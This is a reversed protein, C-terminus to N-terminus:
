NVRVIKSIYMPGYNNPISPLVVQGYRMLSAPAFRSMFEFGQVTSTMDKITTEINYLFKLQKMAMYVVGDNQIPSLSCTSYVVTGGPKCARVGACLLASQTEPLTIREKLRTPKFFNNDDTTVSHRDTTCPVDVLVKDFSDFQSWHIADCTKIVLRDQWTKTQGLFQSFVSRLRAVRAITADNCVLQNPYVTQLIALSKGGPAACLDLVKDLPELNLALVPLLSAADMLYYNSTGFSSRKPRPFRSIDGRPFVFAKLLTPFQLHDDSEKKLVFESSQNLYKLQDDEEVWDEMGKMKSTPVYNNLASSPQGPPIVRDDLNASVDEVEEEVIPQENSAGRRKRSKKGSIKSRNEEFAEHMDICGLGKLMEITLAYDGYYNVLACHKPQSMLALRTSPWLKGYFSGYMEDFHDLAKDINTKKGLGAERIDFKHRKNLLHTRNLRRLTMPVRFYFNFM